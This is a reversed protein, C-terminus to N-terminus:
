EELNVGNIKINGNITVVLCKKGDIVKTNVLEKKEPSVKIQVDPIKLDFKNTDIINEPNLKKDGLIEKYNQDFTELKEESVGSEHLIEKIKEPELQYEESDMSHDNIVEIVEQHLNKMTDYNLEGVTSEVLEEFTNKQAAASMPSEAGTIATVLEPSIDEPKKTYYAIAHIDSERDTFAPFLFGKIPAGVTWEQSNDTIDNEKMNFMLAAKARQVPCISCLIYDYVTESSDEMTTGDTAKTPVDYTGHVITILYNEGYVFNDIINDILEDLEKDVNMLHASQIKYLLNQKGGESEEDIPFSVDYLNKKPTGSLTKKFIDMYKHIQDDEIQYFSVLKDIIKNKEYDVYVLKMKDITSDDPKFQKKLELFNAKIM